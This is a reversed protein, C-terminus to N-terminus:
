HRTSSPLKLTADLRAPMSSTRDLVAARLQASGLQDILVALATIEAVMFSTTMVSVVIGAQFEAALDDLDHTM